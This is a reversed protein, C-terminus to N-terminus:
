ETMDSEKHDWPSCSALSGQGEGDGPTPEFEHGNLIYLIEVCLFQFLLLHEFLIESFFFFLEFTCCTFKEARTCKSQTWTVCPRPCFCHIGSTTRSFFFQFPTPSSLLLPLFCSQLLLSSLSFDLRLLFANVTEGYYDCFRRYFQPLEESQRTPQSNKIM